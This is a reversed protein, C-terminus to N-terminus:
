IQYFTCTCFTCLIFYETTKRLIQLKLSANTSTNRATPTAYFKVFPLYNDNEDTSCANRLFPHFLIINIKTRRFVMWELTTCSIKKSFSRNNKTVRNELLFISPLVDLFYWFDTVRRKQPLVSLRCFGKVNQISNHIQAVKQEFGFQSNNKQTPTKFESTSTLSQPALTETANKKSRWSSLIITSFALAKWKHWRQPFFFWFLRLITEKRTWVFLNVKCRM